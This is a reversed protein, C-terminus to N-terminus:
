RKCCGRFCGNPNFRTGLKHMDFSLSNDCRSDAFEANPRHASARSRNVRAFFIVLLDCPQLKVGDSHKEAVFVEVVFSLRVFIEVRAPSTQLLVERKGTFIPKSHDELHQRDFARLEHRDFAFRKIVLDPHL